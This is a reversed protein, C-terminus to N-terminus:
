YGGSAGGGIPRSGFSDVPVAGKGYVADFQRDLFARHEPPMVSYAAGKDEVFATIMARLGAEHRSEFTSDVDARIRALEGETASAGTTSRRYAAFVQAMLRDYNEGRENLGPIALMLKDVLGRGANDNMEGVWDLNEYNIGASGADKVLHNLMALGGNANAVKGRQTTLGKFDPSDGSVEASAKDAKARTLDTSAYTGETTATRASEEGRMKRYTMWEKWDNVFHPPIFQQEQNYKEQVRGHARAMFSDKAELYRADIEAKMKEAWLLTNPEATQAAIEEREADAVGLMLARLQDETQEVNDYSQMLRSYANNAREGAMEFENRQRTIESDISRDIM